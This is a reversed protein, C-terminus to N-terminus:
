QIDFLRFNFCTDWPVWGSVTITCCNDVKFFRRHFSFLPNDTILSLTKCELKALLTTAINVLFYCVSFSALCSCLLQQLYWPKKLRIVFNGTRVINFMLRQSVGCRCYPSLIWATEITSADHCFRADPQRFLPCAKPWTKARTFFAQFLKDNTASPQM